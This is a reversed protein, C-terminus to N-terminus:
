TITIVLPPIASGCKGCLTAHNRTKALTLARM